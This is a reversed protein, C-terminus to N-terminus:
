RNGLDKMAQNFREFMDVGMYLTQQGSSVKWINNDVQKIPASVFKGTKYDRHRYNPSANWKINALLGKGSRIKTPTM